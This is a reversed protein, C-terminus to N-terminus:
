IRAQAQTQAIPMTTTLIYKLQTIRQLLYNLFKDMEVMTIGQKWALPVEGVLDQLRHLTLSSIRSAWDEYGIQTIWAYKFFIDLHGLLLLAWNGIRQHPNRTSDDHWDGSFALGHDIMLMRFLRAGVSEFLLNDQNECHGQATDVARDANFVWTDFAVIANADPYNTTYSPILSEQGSKILLSLPLGQRFQSAFHLGASFNGYSQTKLEPHLKLFTDTVQIPAVPLVPMGLEQALRTAFFENFLLRNGGSHGGQFSNASKMVWPIQNEDGVLQPHSSGQALPQHYTAAHIITSM